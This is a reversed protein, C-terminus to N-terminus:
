NEESFLVKEVIAATDTICDPCSRLVKGTDIGKLDKCIISSNQEKFAETIQKALKSTSGKSNPNQLDGCSNKIGALVCAAAVAGCTGLMAGQGVGLGETVRFITEEDMGVLDAYTCALAQACNYGKQRRELCQEARTKM